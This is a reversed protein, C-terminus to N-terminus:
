QLDLQCQLGNDLHTRLATSGRGLQEPLLRHPTAADRPGTSPSTHHHPACPSWNAAGLRVPSLTSPHAPSLQQPERIETGQPPHTGGGSKLTLTVEAPVCLPIRVRRPQLRGHPKTRQGQLRRRERCSACTRGPPPKQSELEWAETWKPSEQHDGPGGYRPRCFKAGEWEPWLNGESGREGWLGQPRTLLGAQAHPVRGLVTRGGAQRSEEPLSEGSVEGLGPAWTGGAEGPVAVARM